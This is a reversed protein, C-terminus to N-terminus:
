STLLPDRLLIPNMLTPPFHTLLSPSCPPTRKTSVFSLCILFILSGRISSIISYIFVLNSLSILAIINRTFGISSTWSSSIHIIMNSKLPQHNIAQIIHGIILPIIVLKTSDPKLIQIFLNLQASGVRRVGTHCFPNFPNLHM